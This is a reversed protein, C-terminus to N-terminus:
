SGGGGELPLTSHRAPNELRPRELIERGVAMGWAAPGAGEYEIKINKEITFITRWIERWQPRTKPTKSGNEVGFLRGLAGGL